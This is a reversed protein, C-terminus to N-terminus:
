YPRRPHTEYHYVLRPLSFVATPSMRLEAFQSFLSASWPAFDEPTMRPSFFLDDQQNSINFPASRRRSRAPRFPATFQNGALPLSNEGKALPTEQNHFAKRKRRQLPGAGFPRLGGLMSAIPWQWPSVLKSAVRPPETAGGLSGLEKIPL